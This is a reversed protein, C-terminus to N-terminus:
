VMLVLIVLWFVLGSAACFAIMFETVWDTATELWDSMTKKPEQEAAPDSQVTVYSLAQPHQVQIFNLKTM